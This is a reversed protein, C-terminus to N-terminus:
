NPRTGVLTMEDRAAYIDHSVRERRERGGELVVRWVTVDHGPRGPIVRRQGAPLDPDARTLRAPLLRRDEVEIRIEREAPERGLVRVVLREGAVHTELAVAERETNRIVLDSRGWAVAADRGPSVSHVPWTHPHREVIELGALLAANYLTSSVQCIGGGVAQEIRGRVIADARLYGRDAAIRGVTRNFSLTRGPEIAAGDLAAAARAINHRQEPSRGQLTTSFSAIEQPPSGRARLVALGGIAALGLLLFGHERTLRM